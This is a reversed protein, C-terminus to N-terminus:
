RLAAQLRTEIEKSVRAGAIGAAIWHTSGYLALMAASFKVAQAADLGGLPLALALFGILIPLVYRWVIPRARVVVHLRREHGAEEITVDAIARITAKGQRHTSEYRDPAVLQGLIDGLRERVDRAPLPTRVEILTNWSLPGTM